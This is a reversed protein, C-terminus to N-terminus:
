RNTRSVVSGAQGADAFGREFPLLLGDLHQEVLPDGRADDALSGNSMSATTPPMIRSWYWPPEVTIVAILPTSIAIHSRIPLAM